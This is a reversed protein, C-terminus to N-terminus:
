KKAKKLRIERIFQSANQNSISKLKRYLNSHSMGAERALEEPGFNENALNAEVINTLKQIFEKYV